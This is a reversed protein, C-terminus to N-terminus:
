KLDRNKLIPKGEIDEGIMLKNPGIYVAHQLDCSCCVLYFGRQRYQCLAHPIFEFDKKMVEFPVEKIEEVEEVEQKKQGNSKQENM